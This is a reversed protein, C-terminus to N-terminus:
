QRRLRITLRNEPSEQVPILTGTISQGGIELVADVGATGNRGYGCGGATCACAGRDCAFVKFCAIPAENGADDVVRCQDDRNISGGEDLFVVDDLPACSFQGSELEFPTQIVCWSDLPEALDFAFRIRGAQVTVDHVSYVFGDRLGPYDLESPPALDPNTAPPLPNADGVEFTGTGAANVTLRVRDSRGEYFTYGEAYGDWSGVFDSLQAQENGLDIPAGESCALAAIPILLPLTLKTM